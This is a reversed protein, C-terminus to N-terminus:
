CQLTLKYSVASNGKTKPFEKGNGRLDRQATIRKHTVAYLTELRKKGFLCLIEGLFHAIKQRRGPTGGSRTWFRKEKKFFGNFVFM